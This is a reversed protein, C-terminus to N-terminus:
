RGRRHTRLEALWSFNLTADLDITDDGAGGDVTNEAIQSVENSGSFATATITDNGEGGSFCDSLFRECAFAGPIRSGDGLRRQDLGRTVARGAAV